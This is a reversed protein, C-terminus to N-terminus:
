QTAGECPWDKPRLKKMESILTLAAAALTLGLFRPVHEPRTLVHHVGWM